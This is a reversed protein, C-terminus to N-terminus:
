KLMLLSSIPIPKWSPPSPSGRPGRDMMEPSCQHQSRAEKLCVSGRTLFNAPLLNFSLQCDSNKSIATASKDSFGLKQPDEETLSVTVCSVLSAREALVLSAGIRWAARVTPASRTPPAISGNPSPHSPPSLGSQTTPTGTLKPSDEIKLTSEPHHFLAAGPCDKTKMPSAEVRRPDGKPGSQLWLELVCSLTEVM